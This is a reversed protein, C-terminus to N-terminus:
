ALIRHLGPGRFPKKGQGKFAVHCTRLHTAPLCSRPIIRSPTSISVTRPHSRVCRRWSFRTSRSRAVPGPIGVRRRAPTAAAPRSLGSSRGPTRAHTRTDLCIGARQLSLCEDAELWPSGCASPDARSSRRKGAGSRVVGRQPRAWFAKRRATEYM